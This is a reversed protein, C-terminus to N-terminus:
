NIIRKSAFFLLVICYAQIFKLSNSRKAAFGVVVVVVGVVVVVLLTTEVTGM